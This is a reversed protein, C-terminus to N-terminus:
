LGEQLVPNHNNLEQNIQQVESNDTLVKFYPSGASLRQVKCQYFMEEPCINVM